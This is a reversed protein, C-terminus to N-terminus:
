AFRCRVAAGQILSQQRREHFELLLEERLASTKLHCLGTSVQFDPCVVAVIEDERNSVRVVDRQLLCCWITTLAM